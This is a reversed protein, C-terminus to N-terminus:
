PNPYGHEDRWKQITEKLSLMEALSLKTDPLIAIIEEYEPSLDEDSSDCYDEECVTYIDDAFDRINSIATAKIIEDNELDDLDMTIDKIYSEIRNWNEKKM